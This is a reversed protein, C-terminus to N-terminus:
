SVFEFCRAITVDYDVLTHLRCVEAPSSTRILLQSNGEPLYEGEEVEDMFEDEIEEVGCVMVGEESLQVLEGPEPSGEPDYGCLEEMGDYDEFYSTDDTVLEVGDDDDEFLKSSTPQNPDYM